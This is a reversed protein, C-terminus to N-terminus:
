LSCFRLSSTTFWAQLDWCEPPPPSLVITKLSAQTVSYSGCVRILDFCVAFVGGWLFCKLFENKETRSAPLEFYLGWCLWHRTLPNSEVEFIAANSHQCPLLFWGQTRTYHFPLPLFPRGRDRWLIVLGVHLHFGWPKLLEGIHWWWPNFELMVIQPVSMWAM